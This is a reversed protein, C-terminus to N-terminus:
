LSKIDKDTFNLTLRLNIHEHNHPAKSICVVFYSLFAIITSDEQNELVM